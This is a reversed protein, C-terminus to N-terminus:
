ESEGRGLSNSHRAEDAQWGLPDALWERIEGVRWASAHTGIKQHSPFAGRGIKEYISSRSLGSLRQVTSFRLFANDPLQDFDSTTDM